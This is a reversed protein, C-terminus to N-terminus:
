ALHWSSIRDNWTLGIRIGYARLDTWDDRTTFSRGLYGADEWFTTARGYTRVSSIRDNLSGVNPRSDGGIRSGQYNADSWGNAAFAPAALSASLTLCALSALVPTFKKVM